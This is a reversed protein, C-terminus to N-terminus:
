LLREQVTAVGDRGLLVDEGGDGGALLNVAPWYLLVLQQALEAFEKAVWWARRREDWHRSAWPVADKLATVFRDDFPTHLRVGQRGGHRGQEISPTASM